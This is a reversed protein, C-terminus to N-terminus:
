TRSREQVWGGNREPHVEHHHQFHQEEQICRGNRRLHAKEGKKSGAGSGAGVEGGKAKAGGGTAKAEGAAGKEQATKAPKETTGADKADPKRSGYLDGYWGGGKLRFSTQSILREVQRAKCAPCVRVPRDTIRQWEEFQHGCAGCEYEYVPM